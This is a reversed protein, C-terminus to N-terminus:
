WLVCLSQRAAAKTDDGISKNCDSDLLCRHTSRGVSWWASCVVNHSMAPVAYVYCVVMIVHVHLVFQAVTSTMCHVMIGRAHVPSSQVPRGDLELVFRWLDILYTSLVALRPYHRIDTPRALFCELAVRDYQRASNMCRNLTPEVLATDCPYYM